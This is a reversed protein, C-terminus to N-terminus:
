SYVTIKNPEDGLGGQGAFLVVDGEVSVELDVGAVGSSCVNGASTASASLKATISPANLGVGFIFGVDAITVAFELQISPSVDIEVSVSEQISPGILSFQPTFNDSSGDNFRFTTGDPITMAVGVSADLEATVAGLTASAAVTLQPGIDFLGDIGIGALPLDLLPLSGTLEQSMEAAISVGLGLSAGLGGTASLTGSVFPAHKTLSLDYNVGGTTACNACQLAFTVDNVTTNLINRSFDHAISISGSERKALGSSGSKVRIVHDELLEHWPTAAGSLTATLAPADFAIHTVAYQERGKKGGCKDGDVVFYFTNKPSDNVWQWYSQTTELAMANKFTLVVQKESSCDLSEVLNQMRAFNLIKSNNGVIAHLHSQYG